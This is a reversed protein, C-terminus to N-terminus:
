GAEHHILVFCSLFIQAAACGARAKSANKNKQVMRWNHAGVM